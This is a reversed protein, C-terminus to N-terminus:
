GKLKKLVKLVEENCTEPTGREFRSVYVEYEGHPFFEECPMYGLASNTYACTFTMKFPSAARLAMANVDFSEFPTTTFAIDGFTIVTLPVEEVPDMGARTNIAFVEYMSPFGYEALIAPRDEASARAWKKAGEKKKESDKQVQCPVMLNEVSIKGIEAKEGGALAQKVIGALATGLTMHDPLFRHKMKDTMVLNGSAGNHYAFHANMNLEVEHRLEYIFDASITNRFVAAGHAAHMQWNALIIDKGGEREFRIARLEPDAESEHGAYDECPNSSQISKFSGDKMVYRRTFNFNKAETKGITVDTVKKLDSLAMEAADAVKVWCDKRWQVCDENATTITHPCNHTHTSNLIVHTAPVGTRKEIEETAGLFFPRPMDKMDTHFILVVTESDSLATCTVLLPDRQKDAITGGGLLIPLRPSMDARGHGAAFGEPLAFKLNEM